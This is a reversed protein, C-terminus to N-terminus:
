EEESVALNNNKRCGDACELRRFPLIPSGPWLALWELRESAAMVILRGCYGCQSNPSKRLLDLKDLVMESTGNPMLGRFDIKQKPDLKALQRLVTEGLSPVGPARNMGMEVLRPMNSDSLNDQGLSIPKQQWPNGASMLKTLKHARALVVIEFPLETLQNGAINLTELNILARIGPPISTLGNNRLSLLRLNELDLIPTPFNTFLNNALYVRLRPELDTGTDLMGPVIEDQKALTQLSTIEEPLSDM